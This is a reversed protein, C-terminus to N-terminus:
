GGTASTEDTVGPEGTEGPWKNLPCDGWPVRVKVYIPCSCEGCMLKPADEIVRGLMDVFFYLPNESMDKTRDCSMCVELRASVLEPNAIM